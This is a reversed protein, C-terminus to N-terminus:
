RVRSAGGTLRDLTLGQDAIVSGDPLATVARPTADVTVTITVSRASDLATRRAAAVARAWSPAEAAPAARRFALTTVGALVGLIALVVILEILTSGRARTM